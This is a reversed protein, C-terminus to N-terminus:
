YHPPPPDKGLSEETGDVLGELKLKLYGLQDSLELIERWQKISIDSLDEIIYDQHAIREELASIRKDTDTM